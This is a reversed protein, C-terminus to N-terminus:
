GAAPLLLHGHRPSCRGALVERYAQEVAEPGRAPLLDVRRRAGDLYSRWASDQRRRLGEVGWDATRQRLQEPAFFVEASPHPVLAQDDARHTAGVLVTRRLRGPLAARLQDRVAADGALDALVVGGDPALGAVDEARPYPVVADYLGTAACATVRPAATLGVVRLGSGTLQQAVAQSARSSASTLVVTLVDSAEALRVLHEALLFGLVFLPRLLAGLAEDEDPGAAGAATPPLREYHQYAGPLDRRHEAGDRLTLPTLRRPWLLCNTAIPLLGSIRSGPPLESLASAEVRATGWGPLCGWGPRASPFFDWYRLREGLLGYTLTNATLAVAEVQLLVAGEPLSGAAPLPAGDPLGDRWALGALDDRGTLLTRAGTTV